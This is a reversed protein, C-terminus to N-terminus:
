RNFVNVLITSTVTVSRVEDLHSAAISSCTEFRTMNAGAMPWSVETEVRIARNPQLWTLRYLLCFPQDDEEMGPSIMASRLGDNFGMPHRDGAYSVRRDANNRGDGIVWGPGGEISDGPTQGGAYAEDSTGLDALHPFKDPNDLKETPTWQSFELRLTEIFNEALLTARQMRVMNTMGSISKAQLDFLAVFGITSVGVVMLLEVLTFGRKGSKWRKLRERM